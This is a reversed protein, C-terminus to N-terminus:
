SELITVIIIVIVFFYSLLILLVLLLLILHLQYNTTGLLKQSTPFPKPQNASKTTLTAFLSKKKKDSRKTEKLLILEQELQAIKIPAYDRKKEIDTVKHICKTSRKQFWTKSLTKEKIIPKQARRPLLIENM